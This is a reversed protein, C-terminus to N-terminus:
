RAGHNEHFKYKVDATTRAAIADDLHLYRGLHITKGDVQIKAHWKSRGVDWSVGMHGSTNTSPKKQNRNNEVGVGSRLNEIRNDTRIGNIHDIQDVPWQGYHLAWCVRHAYFKVDHISGTLYGNKRISTFASTYAYRTNWMNGIRPSTFMKRPRHLWTLSGTAPDYRLLLRLEDIPITNTMM